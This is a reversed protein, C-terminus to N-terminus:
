NVFGYRELLEVDIRNNKKMSDRNILMNEVYKALQDTEINVRKGSGKRGITTMKATHPIISLSIERGAVNNITLSVGDIAISGKKICYRIQEAPIDITLIIVDGKLERRKVVGIGDIHGSVLHGNLRGTALLAREMNVRDGSKIDDMCTTKITEPSIDCIFIMGRLETVTLCAGNIAISDGISIDRSIMEASVALRRQDIEKVIGIEEICGTFM